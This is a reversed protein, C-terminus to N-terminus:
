EDKKSRQLQGASALLYDVTVTDIRQGRRVRELIDAVVDRILPM